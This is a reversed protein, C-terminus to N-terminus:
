VGSGFSCGCSERHVFQAALRISRPTWGPDTIQSLLLRVASAGMERCPQAITTLRPTFLDAWEFDDFAVLAMDDPITLGAERLARMAGITMYNNGVVLATPPTGLALLGAVARRAPEAASDGAAVLEPILGLGSRRLGLRYGTLREKTTALGELGAVLAIRRHGLDALHRVLLATAEVNETGVQDFTVDAMRDILVTPISQERAYRLAARSDGSAAIIIGEVRRQHLDHLVRLERDPDDHSDGLLLSYRNRVVEDDVGQVVETFYPNTIVTMILGISQSRATMLARAVTNPVYGTDRVADLVAERTQARVFRTGNIVHSVTSVSVGARRAVELMTVVRYPESESPHSGLQRDADM